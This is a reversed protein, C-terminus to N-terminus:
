IHAKASTDLLDIVEKCERIMEERTYGGPRGGYRVSLCQNYFRLAREIIDSSIGSEVLRSRIKDIDLDAPLVSFRESLFRYYVETVSEYFEQDSTNDSRM